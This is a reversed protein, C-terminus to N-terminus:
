VQNLLNREIKKTILDSWRDSDPIEPLFDTAVKHGVRDEYDEDIRWFCYNEVDICDVEMESLPYSTGTGTTMTANIEEDDSSEPPVVLVLIESTPEDTQQYFLREGVIVESTPNLLDGKNDPTYKSYVDSFGFVDEYALSGLKVLDVIDTPSDDLFTNEELGLMEGIQTTPYIDTLDIDTINPGFQSIKEQFTNTYTEDFISNLLMSTISSTNSFLIGSGFYDPIDFQEMKPMLSYEGGIFEVFFPDEDARIITVVEKTLTGGDYDMTFTFTEDIERAVPIDRSCGCEDTLVVPETEELTFLIEGVFCGTPSQTCASDSETWNDSFLEEVITLSADSESGVLTLNDADTYFVPVGDKSPLTLVPYAYGSWFCDPLTENFLPRVILTNPVQAIKTHSVTASINSNSLM